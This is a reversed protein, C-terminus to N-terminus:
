KDEYKEEEQFQNCLGRGMIRNNNASYQNTNREM